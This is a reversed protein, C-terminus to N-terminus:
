LWLRMLASEETTGSMSILRYRLRLIIVTSIRGFHVKDFSM